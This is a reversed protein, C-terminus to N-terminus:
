KVSKKEDADYDEAKRSLARQAEDCLALLTDTPGNVQVFSDRREEPIPGPTPAYFGGPTVYSGIVGYTTGIYTEPCRQTNTYTHANTRANYFPHVSLCNSDRLDCNEYFTTSNSQTFAFERSGGVVVCGDNGAGKVKLSNGITDVVYGSSGSVPVSGDQSNGAV